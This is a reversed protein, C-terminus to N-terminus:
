SLPKAGYLRGMVALNAASHKATRSAAGSAPGISRFRFSALLPDAPQNIMRQATASREQPKVTTMFLPLALFCLPLAFRGLRRAIRGTTCAKLRAPAVLDM